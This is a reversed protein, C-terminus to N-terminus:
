EVAKHWQHNRVKALQDFVRAYNPVSMTESLLLEMKDADVFHIKATVSVQKIRKHQTPLFLYPDREIFAVGDDTTFGHGLQYEEKPVPFVNGQEDTMLIKLQELWVMGSETPDLRMGRGRDRAEEPLDFVAEYNEAHFVPQREVCMRETFGDGVDVYLHAKNRNDAAWRADTALEEAWEALSRPCEYNIKARFMVMRIKTREPLEFIMKPDVSLFLVKGDEEIGNTERADHITFTQEKKAEDQISVSIDKLCFLTEDSPDIRIMTAYQAGRWAELPFVVQVYGDRVIAPARIHQEDSFGEGQSWFLVADKMFCSRGKLESSQMGVLDRRCKTAEEGNLLIPVQMVGEASRKYNDEWEEFSVVEHSTDRTNWQRYIATTENLDYVGAIGATRQLYDWDETSTLEEDLLIHMRRFLSLPFALGMFPCQNEYQQELTGYPICYQGNPQGAASIEQRGKHDTSLVAWAQTLVNAHLIMGYHDQSAQQFAQVWHDFVLDDDDLCAAYQGRALAFGLNVPAGREGEDTKVVRIKARFSAPMDKVLEEVRASDAAAARHCIIVIEFDPDTQAQLCLLVDTLMDPRKGQTRVVVTLFVPTAPQADVIDQYKRRYLEDNGSSGIWHLYKRVPSQTHLLQLMEPVPIREEGTKGGSSSEMVGILKRAKGDTEKCPTGISPLSCEEM